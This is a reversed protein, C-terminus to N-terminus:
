GVGSKAGVDCGVACLRCYGKHKGWKSIGVVKDRKWKLDRLRFQGM